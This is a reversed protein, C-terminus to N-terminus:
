LGRIRADEAAAAAKAIRDKETAAATSVAAQAAALQDNLGTITGNLTAVQSQLTTVQGELPATAAAVAATCDTAPATPGSSANVKATYEWKGNAWRTYWVNSGSDPDVDGTVTGAIVWDEHAGAPVSRLVTSSAIQPASRINSTAKVTIKYGPLYTALNPMDDGAPAPRGNALAVFTQLDASSGVFWNHDIGNLGGEQWFHWKIAPPTSAWYAVWNFDQGLDSYGSLSAYLGIKKGAAHVRKIFDAAQARGSATKANTGELDLVLLDAGAAVKLFTAVAKANDQGDYWFWYAGLVKGAKRVNAAHMSYRSDVTATGYGARVFVFEVKSLSPTTSQWYSIDYGDCTLAM